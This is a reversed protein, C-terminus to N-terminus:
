SRSGGAAVAAVAVVAAVAAAVPDVWAPLVEAAAPAHAAGATAEPVEVSAGVVEREPVAQFAAIASAIEEEEEQEESPGLDAAETQEAQPVIVQEQLPAIRPVVATVQEPEPAIRPVVTTERDPELDIRFVEATALGVVTVPVEAIASAEGTGLMEAIALGEVIALAVEIVLVAVTALVAVTPAASIAAKGASRNDRARRATLWHIAM